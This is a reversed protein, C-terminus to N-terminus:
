EIGFLYTLITSLVNKQVAYNPKVKVHASNVKEFIIENVNIFTILSM